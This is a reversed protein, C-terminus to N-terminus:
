QKPEPPPPPDRPHGVGGGSGSPDGRWGAGVGDGPDPSPPLRSMGTIELGGLLRLSPEGRGSRGGPDPLIRAPLPPPAVGGGTM